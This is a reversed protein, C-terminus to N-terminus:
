CARAPAVPGSMCVGPVETDTGQRTRELIRACLRRECERGLTWDPEPDPAPYGGPPKLDEVQRQITADDCTVTGNEVKVQVWRITRNGVRPVEMTVM